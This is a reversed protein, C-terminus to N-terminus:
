PVEHPWMVWAIPGIAGPPAPEPDPGPGPSGEGSALLVLPCSFSNGFREAPALTPAPNWVGGEFEPREITHVIAGGVAAVKYITTYGAPDDNHLMIWVFLNFELIYIIQQDGVIGGAFTPFMTTPDLYSFTAGSDKSVALYVNGTM